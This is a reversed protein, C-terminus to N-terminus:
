PHVDGPFDPGGDEGESGPDAEDPGQDDPEAGEAELVDAANDTRVQELLSETVRIKAGHRLALAVADSPRADLLIEEADTPAGPDSDLPPGPLASLRLRAYFTNARLDIIDAGIVRSGLAGIAQAALQHTLPRPTDVDTLLRHIEGAEGSGIVIPFGRPASDGAPASEELFIWQQDSHERLVVRVLRLDVYSQIEPTPM